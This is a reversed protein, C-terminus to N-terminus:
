NPITIIKGKEEVKKATMENEFIIYEEKFSIYQIQQKPLLIKEKCSLFDPNDGVLITNDASPRLIYKNDFRVGNTLQISAIINVKNM